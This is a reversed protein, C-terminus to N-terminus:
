HIHLYIVTTTAARMLGTKAWYQSRLKCGSLLKSKRAKADIELCSHPENGYWISVHLCYWFAEKQKICSWLQSPQEIFIRDQMPITKRMKSNLNEPAPRHPTQRNEKHTHPNEGPERTEELLTFFFCTLCITLYSSAVHTFILAFPQKDKMMARCHVQRKFFIRNTQM